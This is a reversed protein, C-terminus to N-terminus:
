KCSDNLGDSPYTTGATDEAESFRQPNSTRYHYGFRANLQLSWLTENRRRLKLKLGMVFLIYFSSFPLMNEKENKKSM